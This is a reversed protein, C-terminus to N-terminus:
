SNFSRPVLLTPLKVNKIWLCHINLPDSLLVIDHTKGSETSSVCLFHVWSNMWLFLVICFYKSDGWRDWLLDDPYLGDSYWGYLGEPTLLLLCDLRVDRDLPYFDRLLFLCDTFWLPRWLFFITAIETLPFLPSWELCSLTFHLFFFGVGKGGVLLKSLQQLGRVLHSTQLRSVSPVRDTVKVNRHKCVSSM